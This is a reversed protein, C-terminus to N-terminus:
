ATELVPPVDTDAAPAVPASPDVAPAAEPLAPVSGSIGHFKKWRAYQTRITSPDLSPTQALGEAMAQKIPTPQKFEASLKDFLAWCKGCAGDSGPRRIGNQEPQKKAEKAALDATKKDEKAKLEAAKAEAEAAKATEKAAKEAAKEAAKAAKDAAAKEAKAVKPDVPTPADAQAQAQSQNQAYTM